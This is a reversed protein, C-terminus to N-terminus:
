MTLVPRQMREQRKRPRVLRAVSPAVMTPANVGGSSCFNYTAYKARVGHRCRKAGCLHHPDKGDADAPLPLRGDPLLRGQLRSATEWLEKM